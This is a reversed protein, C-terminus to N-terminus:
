GPYLAELAEALLHASSHWFAHKGEKDDWKHLQITADSNIPLDLDFLEGNVEAVMVESALRPSIGEAIERASIGEVFERTSGDPFTIKIM